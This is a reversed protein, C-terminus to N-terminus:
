KIKKFHDELLYSSWINLPMIKVKIEKFHQELEFKMQFFLKIPIIDKVKFYQELVNKTFSKTEVYSYGTKGRIILWMREESCWVDGNTLNLDMYWEEGIFFYIRDPYAQQDKKVVMKSLLDDFWIRASLQPISKFKTKIEETILKSPITSWDIFEAYEELQEPTLIDYDINM